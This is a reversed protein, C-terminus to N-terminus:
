KLCKIRKKKESKEKRHRVLLEALKGGANENSLSSHQTRNRTRILVYLFVLIWMFLMRNSRETREDSGRNSKKKKKRSSKTRRRNRGFHLRLFGMWNCATVNTIFFFKKEEEVEAFRSCKRRACLIIMSKAPKINDNERAYSRVQEQM